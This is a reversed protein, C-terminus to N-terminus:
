SKSKSLRIECRVLKILVYYGLIYTISYPRGGSSVLIAMFSTMSSKTDSQTIPSQLVDWIVRNRPGVHPRDLASLVWTFERNAGNVKSDPTIGHIYQSIDDPFHRGNQEPRLINFWLKRMYMVYWAYGYSFCSLGCIFPDSDDLM